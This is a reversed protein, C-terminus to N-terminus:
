DIHAARRVNMYIFLGSEYLLNDKSDYKPRCLSSLESM